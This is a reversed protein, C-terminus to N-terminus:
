QMQELYDSFWDEIKSPDTPMGSFLESPPIETGNGPLDPFDSPNISPFDSPDISPFDSPDITPTDLTPAASGDSEETVSSTADDTTTGSKDDDGRQTVLLIGVVVVAVAVLAGLVGIAIRLGKGGGVQLQSPTPEPV